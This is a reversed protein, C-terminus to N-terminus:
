EVAGEEDSCEYATWVWCKDSDANPRLDCFPPVDIVYHNAVIKQTKEQRLLFRVKGSDNHKYLKAEGVGRDKWEGDRFRYLKSRQSYLLKESEEGSDIRDLLELTM